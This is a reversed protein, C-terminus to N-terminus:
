DDPLSLQSRWTSIVTTEDPQLQALQTSRISNSNAAACAAASANADAADNGPIGAHGAIWHITIPISTSNREMLKRIHNAIIPYQRSRLYLQLIGYSLHSDTLIHIESDVPPKKSLIFEIAAGIAAIEGLNNTGWGLPISINTPPSGPIFIGSGCPGPNSNHTGGDTYAVIADPPLSSILLAAEDRAQRAQEKTRKGSKGTNPNILSLSDSIQYLTSLKLISPCYKGMTRSITVSFFLPLSIHTGKLRLCRASWITHLLFINLTAEKRSLLRTAGILLTTNQEQQPVTPLDFNKRTTNINDWVHACDGYLHQLSDTIDCGFPCTTDPPIYTIEDM